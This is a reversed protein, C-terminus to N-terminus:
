SSAVLSLTFTSGKGYESKFQIEGKLLAALKQSLHLGLGAGERRRPNYQRARAFPEFLKEQDEPAIGVGTDHVSFQTCVHGGYDCSDLILAVEGSETFKIANSTLNLLIQRLARQDTNLILEKEPTKVTFTLGKKNALPLLTTYVEDVLTQCVVPEIHLTIKGSGIKALDLLDNILSLLHKASSRVTRLQKAQEENLPGPLKMLLTGTFGIIANLPTRLEHSMGALFDDKAVLARGLELNKEELEINKQRLTQEFKKRRSSFQSVVVASLVFTVFYPVENRDIRLTHVPPIFFYAAAAMSLFAATLGSATQGFWAAAMVAASFLLVYADPFVIQLLLSSILAAAVFGAAMGYRPM